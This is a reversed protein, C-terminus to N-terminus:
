RGSIRGLYAPMWLKHDSSTTDKEAALFEALGFRQITDRKQQLGVSSRDTAYRRATMVEPNAAAFTSDPMESESGPTIYRHSRMVEIDRGTMYRRARVVEPNAAAFTSDPMEPQVDVGNGATTYRRARMVEPNAAFFTSDSSGAADPVAINPFAPGATEQQELVTSAFRCAAALEPNAALLTSGAADSSIGACHNAAPIAQYTDMPAPGAAYVTLSLLGVLVLGLTVGVVQSFNHRNM